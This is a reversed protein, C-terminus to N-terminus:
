AHMRRKGAPRELSLVPALRPELEGRLEGSGLSLARDAGVLATADTASALVALGEDALSRLLALMGDREMLDIGITPEDIVLMRPRLGLVRAIAARVIEGSDLEDPERMACDGLGVRRLAEHAQRRASTSPLGRALLRAMLQDLMFQGEAPRFTKQCYGIGQVPLRRRGDSLLNGDFRVVGSDPLEIGAAVRLLTSRGSRRLGWVSVLEGADVTLSVDALALRERSGRRYLKSVHELELLAM